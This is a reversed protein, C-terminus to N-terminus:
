SEKKFFLIKRGWDTRVSEAVKLLRCENVIFNEIYDEINQRIKLEKFKPFECNSQKLRKIATRYCKWPQPEIVLFDTLKSVKSLFLKLGDDGHNLHIWMSISFCFVVDFKNCNLESLYREIEGFHDDNMIDICKFTVDSSNYKEVARQILTPDIDFGLVKCNKINITNKFFSYIAVTLDGANCGVDLINYNKGARTSYVPWIDEPLLVVRKDPPHFQYYNIFNGFRVAGPNGNKFNLDDNNM